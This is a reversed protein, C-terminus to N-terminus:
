GERKILLLTIDDPPAEISDLNLTEVLTGMSVETSDILSLIFDKQNAMGEQPLIEFVGDSFMALLFSKPMDITTSTYEADRFLGIPLNREELFRATQGDFLIPRPYHGGNSYTMTGEDDNLVGYFMTLYKGLDQKEIMESVQKLVRDPHLITNSEARQHQELFSDVMSKLLVTVFASPAGHGSVDAVYFGWHADDIQFYDVFDGSLLASPKLLRSFTYAGVTLLPEPLLQFQVRRAAAEDAELQQVTEELRRNTEILHERYEQNERVLRAQDLAKKVSHELVEMDHIPKTIFDWAGLKLAEVADRMDGTGSVIIFPTEPSTRTIEALVSLGDLEPMRLDCLVLDPKEAEFVELGIRGNEAEIMEFGSDELYGVISRRVTEEDEISLIRAPNDM